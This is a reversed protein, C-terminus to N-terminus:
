EPPALKFDSYEGVNGLDAGGLTTVAHLNPFGADADADSEFDIFQLGLGIVENPQFEHRDGTGDANLLDWGPLALEYTYVMGDRVVASEVEPPDALSPQQRVAESTLGPNMVYQQADAGSHDADIFVEIDDSQWANGFDTSTTTGFADDTVRAAVYLLNTQENWGLWVEVKQDAEPVPGIVEGLHSSFDVQMLHPEGFLAEWESLDGDILPLDATAIHSIEASPPSPSPVSPPTSRTPEPNTGWEINDWFAETGGFGEGKITIVNVGEGATYSSTYVNWVGLFVSDSHNADYDWVAANPNGAISRSTGMMWLEGLRDGLDRVGDEGSGIIGTPADPWLDIGVFMGGGQTMYALHLYYTEGPTVAIAHTWSDGASTSIGFKASTSGDFAAADTIMMTGAPRGTYNFAPLHWQALDSEFDEFFVDPLPIPPEFGPRCNPTECGGAVANSLTLKGAQEGQNFSSVPDKDACSMMTVAAVAAFLGKMKSM